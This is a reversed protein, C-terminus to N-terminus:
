HKLVKKNPTIKLRRLRGVRISVRNAIVAREMQALLEDRQGAQLQRLMTIAKREKDSLKM